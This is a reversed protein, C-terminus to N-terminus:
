LAPDDYQMAGAINGETDRFFILRGVTEIHYPPMLVQGGAAEIAKVTAEIDDVAYSVEIDPMEVGNLKRRGQLAGVVGEGADFTQFFQPPGWPKYTWGFVAGYFARARTTDDANIAFHRLRAPRSV